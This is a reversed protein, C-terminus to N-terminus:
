MKRMLLEHFKPPGYVEKLLIEFDELLKWTDGPRMASGELLCSKIFRQMKPPIADPMRNTGLDGGALYVMCKAAMFLDTVGGAPKKKLVEVPYWDRYKASITKVQEGGDVSHGWGVLQLGHTEPNVLVHSPLVAAHVINNQQAFGVITLLRKFIWAIHRGDLTSHQEHIQPLTYFGEERVFVNVRKQIKDKALFSEALIPLYRAYSKTGAKTLLQTLAKQEQNLLKEGGEIRSIKLLYEKNDSTATYIDAVDGAALLDIIEYKRKPSKIPPTPKKLRAYWEGIKIYLATARADCGNRDPHTSVQLLKFRAEPDEGFFAKPTKLTKFDNEIEDLTIIKM